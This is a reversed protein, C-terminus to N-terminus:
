QPGETTAIRHPKLRFPPSALPEYPLVATLVIPITEVLLPEECAISCPQESADVITIKRNVWDRPIASPWQSDGSNLIFDVRLSAQPDVDIKRNETIFGRQYAILDYSGPDLPYVSVGHSNTLLQLPPNLIIVQAGVIPAGDADQVSVVIHAAGPPASSQAILMGSSILLALALLRASSLLRVSVV